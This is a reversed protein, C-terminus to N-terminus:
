NQPPALEVRAFQYGAVFGECEARACGLLVEHGTQTATAGSKKVWARMTKSQERPPYVRQGLPGVVEVHRGVYAGPIERIKLKM